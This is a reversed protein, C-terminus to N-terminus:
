AQVCVFCGERQRTNRQDHQSVTAVAYRKQWTLLVKVNVCSLSSLVQAVGVTWSNCYDNGFGKIGRIKGQWVSQETASQLQRQHRGVREM